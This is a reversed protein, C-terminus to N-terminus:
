TTPHEGCWARLLTEITEIDINKWLDLTGYLRLRKSLEYNLESRSDGERVRYVLEKWLNWPNKTPIDTYLLSIRDTPRLLGVPVEFEFEILDLCELVRERPLGLPAFHVEYCQDRNLMERDGFRSRMVRIWHADARNMEVGGFRM